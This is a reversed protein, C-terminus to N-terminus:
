RRRESSVSFVRVRFGRESDWRLCAHGAIFLITRGDWERAQSSRPDVLDEPGSSRCTSFCGHRSTQDAHPGDPAATACDTPQRCLCVTQSGKFEHGAGQRSGVDRRGSDEARNLLEPGRQEEILDLRENTFILAHTPSQVASKRPIGGNDNACLSVVVLWGRESCPTRLDLWDSRAPDGTRFFYPIRGLCSLAPLQVDRFGQLLQMPDNCESYRRKLHWM